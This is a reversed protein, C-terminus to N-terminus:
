PAELIPIRFCGFASKEYMLAIELCRLFHRSLGCFVSNRRKGGTARPLSYPAICNFHWNDSPSNGHLLQYAYYSALTSGALGAYAMHQTMAQTQEAPM